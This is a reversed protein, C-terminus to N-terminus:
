RQMEAKVVKWLFSVLCILAALALAIVEMGGIWKLVEILM